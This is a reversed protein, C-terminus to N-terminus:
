VHVPTQFNRLHLRLPAPTPQVSILLEPVGWARMYAHASNNATRYSQRTALHRVNGYAASRYITLIFVQYQGADNYVRM